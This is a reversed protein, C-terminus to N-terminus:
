RGTGSLAVSKAPAGGTASVQLSASKAGSSTPKFKVSVTCSAGVAMRAPCNTTRTFQGPNAGAMAFALAEVAVTGTNSVTVAKTVSPTGVAVTGFSLSLPAYALRM